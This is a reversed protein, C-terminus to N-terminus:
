KHPRRPREFAKEGFIRVDETMAKFTESQALRDTDNRLTEDIKRLQTDSIKGYVVAHRHARDKLYNGFEIPLTYKRPAIFGEQAHIRSGSWQQPKPLEIFGLIVFRGLKSQVFTTENNHVVDIEVARLLYRCFNPPFDGTLTDISDFPLLHQEFRGPHIVKDLLFARWTELAHAAATRQAESFQKLGSEELMFLLSRWSVSVCFKLLWRGYRIRHIRGSNSSHFLSNAFKTEWVNLKQECSLCLWRKTKGDQVRRNPHQGFRIFGTASTEKLWRFVFAPLVHSDQLEAVEGCLRCPAQM